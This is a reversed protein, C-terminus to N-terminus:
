RDAWISNMEWIELTQCRVHGQTCLGVGLSDARSPYIRNTLCARGNAYIEVVSRDLYIHLALNEGPALELPCTHVGRKVEPDLSSLDRDISLSQTARDYVIPTQEAGDPSRRIVLGFKSMADLEVEASIELCDGRDIDLINQTVDLNTWHQHKGRLAQLEPAPEANLLGDPRLTLIRPLSQVGAWGSARQAENSRGEWLWGFIIRRGQDDLMTQPAYYHGGWDVVGETEPSFRYDKYTGVFYLAKGLPVPSIILVHKDGLPFFNPCEWMHGTQSKDGVYLPHMYEWHLLDRSRYLLIAGGVDPIGSGIVAYWTDGEQWVFPDRFDNPLMGAPPAAIVPNGAYKQWTRLDDTSTAICQVQPNVGTYIFTPMGHNNVACGSFCGDKDPGGLTPALAIPLHTWHVLDRSVAHGWHMSGWFAGNPNHQYFLHYAGQWQILGNPDNMWNAPPLFHYQPRHMDSLIKM